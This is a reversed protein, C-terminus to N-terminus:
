RQRIHAILVILFFAVTGVLYAGASFSLLCGFGPAYGTVALFTAFLKFVYFYMIAITLLYGITKVPWKHQERMFRSSLKSIPTLTIGLMVSLAVLFFAPNTGSVLGQMQQAFLEKPLTGMFREHVAKFFQGIVQRGENFGKGPVVLFCCALLVAIWLVYPMLYFILRKNRSAGLFTYPLEGAHIKKLEEENMGAPKIYSGYPIWGLLYTTGGIEKRFIPAKIKFFISFEEVKIKWIRCLLFHLLEQCLTVLLILVGFDFFTTSFSM